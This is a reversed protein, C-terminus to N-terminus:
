IWITPSNKQWKNNCLEFHAHDFTNCLLTARKLNNVRARDLNTSISHIKLIMGAGYEQVAFHISRTLLHHLIICKSPIDFEILWYADFLCASKVEFWFIKTTNTYCFQILTVVHSGYKFFANKQSRLWFIHLNDNTTLIIPNVKESLTPVNMMQLHQQTTIVFFARKM